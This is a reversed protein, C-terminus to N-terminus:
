LLKRLKNLIEDSKDLPIIIEEVNRSNEDSKVIQDNNSKTVIDSTKNGLFKGVKHVVKRSASKVADLGTDLM